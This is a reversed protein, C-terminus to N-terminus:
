QWRLLGSEPGNGVMRMGEYTIKGSLRADPAPTQAQSTTIIAGALFFSFVFQKM